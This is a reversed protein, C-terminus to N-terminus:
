VEEGEENSAKKFKKNISVFIICNIIIYLLLSIPNGFNFGIYYVILLLVNFLFGYNSSQYASHREWGLEDM